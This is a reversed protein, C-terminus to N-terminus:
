RWKIKQGCNWCYTHAGSVPKDCTPCWRSKTGAKFVLNGIRVDKDQVKVVVEREEQKDMSELADEYHRRRSRSIGAKLKNKFYNIAGVIDHM